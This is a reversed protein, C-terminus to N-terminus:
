RFAAGFNFSSKHTIDTAYDNTYPHSNCECINGMSHIGNAIYVCIYVYIYIYMYICIYIYVYVYMYIYIYIYIYVYQEVSSHGLISQFKQTINTVYDHFIQQM